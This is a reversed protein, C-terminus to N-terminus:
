HTYFNSPGAGWPDFNLRGFFTWKPPDVHTGIVKKNTSLLEGIKKREIPSPNCNIFHM